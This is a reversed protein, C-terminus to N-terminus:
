NKRDTCTIDMKEADLYRQIIANMTGSRPGNCLPPFVGTPATALSKPPRHAIGELPAVAAASIGAPIVTGRTGSTAHRKKKQSGNNAKDEGTDKRKIKATRKSGKRQTSAESLPMSSSATTSGSGFEFKKNDKLSRRSSRNSKREASIPNSIILDMVSGEKNWTLIPPAVPPTNKRVRPAQQGSDAAMVAEPTGPRYRTDAVAKDVKESTRHSRPTRKRRDPDHDGGSESDGADSSHDATPIVSLEKITQLIRNPDCMQLISECTGWGMKELHNRNFHQDALYGTDAGCLSAELTFSNIIELENYVVVRATSEKGKKVLFSCDPFSFYDIMRSLIRPFVKEKVSPANNGYMFINKKRSHGHIDIYLIVERDKCFNAIMNKAHYITPTLKKSPTQWQRNLDLGCLSSRYNGVIVGDPNLMPVIKFIFNERLKKAENSSSTLYDIVGKMIWSASTEGPHVRATFVVGRRLKMANMQEEEPLGPDPFSTITLLDCTNGALTDCLKTRRVRYGSFREDEMSKLSYMLDSYTYPESHAIYVTDNELFDVSLTLTYYNGKEKRRIGNQYYAINFGTRTWKREGKTSWHLPRLGENYLATSKVMNIINFRYSVGSRTNSVSFYFWQTYNRTNYDPNLVLDYEYEQVQVARRLNGSEFRSEFVLTTDSDNTPEYYPLLTETTGTYHAFPRNINPDASDYVIRNRMLHPNQIRRTEWRAIEEFLNESMEAMPESKVSCTSSVAPVGKNYCMAIDIGTHIGNPVNASVGSGKSTYDMMENMRKTSHSSSSSSGKSEHQLRELDRKHYDDYKDNNRKNINLKNDPPIINCIIEDDKIYHYNQGTDDNIINNDYSRRGDSSLTHANMKIDTSAVLNKKPYIGEDVNNKKKILSENNKIVAM